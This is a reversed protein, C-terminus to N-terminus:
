PRDGRNVTEELRFAFMGAYIELRRRVWEPTEEVARACREVRDRGVHGTLAPLKGDHGESLIALDQWGPVVDPVDTISSPTEELALYPTVRQQWTHRVSEGLRGAISVLDLPLLRTGLESVRYAPDVAVADRASPVKDPLAAEAEATLAPVLAGITRFPTLARYAARAGITRARAYGVLRQATLPVWRPTEFWEYDVDEDPGVEVLAAIEDWTPVFQRLEEPPEPAVLAASLGLNRAERQATDWLVSLEQRLRQSGTFLVASTAPVPYDAGAWSPDEGSFAYRSPTPLEDWARLLRAADPLDAGVERLEELYCALEDFPTEHSRVFALDRLSVGDELCIGEEHLWRALHGTDPSPITDREPSRRTYRRRHVMGVGDAERALAREAEWVTLECEAALEIAAGWPLEPRGGSGPVIYHRMVTSIESPVEAWRAALVPDPAPRGLWAFAAMRRQVEEVDLGTAAAVLPVDWPHVAPRWRHEDEQLYLLRLEADTCVHDRHHDPVANLPERVFPAYRSCAEALEGLPRRAHASARVVGSLDGPPHQYHIELSARRERALPRGWVTIRLGDLPDRKSGLLGKMVYWDTFEPEWDLDGNGVVAPGALRPHAIRLGRTARLVEAVTTGQEYAVLVAGRWDDGVKAAVDSWGPQPVPHGSLSLPVAEKRTRFEPGLAALRWPRVAEVPKEEERQGRQGELAADMRFWGVEDLNVRQGFDGSALAGQGRLAKWLIHAVSPERSEMSWLWELPLESSDALVRAGRQHQEAAWRTDYAELKKRNASLEGAHPGSLNLVYGFTQKDTAIGDCVIAGNGSVWWLTGPVAEITFRTSFSNEGEGSKLQGPLWIEETGDGDRVELRFESILVLSRLVSVVSGASPVGAGRLHLRVSTGGEPLAAGEREDEERVRFLSGSVPIEVRLARAAPRGDPGVPRTVITMEDALMFYSFVGIGFRSNPYLRLSGNTSM